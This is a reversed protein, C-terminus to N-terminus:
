CVSVPFQLALLFVLFPWLSFKAMPRWSPWWADNILTGECFPPQCNSSCIGKSPTVTGHFVCPFRDSLFFSHDSPFNGLFFFQSRFLLSVLPSFKAESFKLVPFTCFWTNSFWPHHHLWLFVLPTSFWPLVRDGANSFHRCLVSFLKM